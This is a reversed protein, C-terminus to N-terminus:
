TMEAVALSRRAFRTPIEFSTESGQVPEASRKCDSQVAPTKKTKLPQGSPTPAASPLVRQMAAEVDAYSPVKGGAERALQWAFTAIDKIDSARMRGSAATRLIAGRWVPIAVGDFYKRGIALMDDRSLKDALKITRVRGDFQEMVYHTANTFRKMASNYSQETAILVVPTGRDILASRVWNLRVPATNRTFKSPALYHSEDIILTVASFRRVYEIRERLDQETCHRELRIGYAEAVARLLDNLSASDPTNVIRFRAPFLKVLLEASVTKGRRANGHLKIPSGTAHARECERSIEQSLSTKAVADYIASRRESIFRILCEAVDVFYWPAGDGPQRSNYLLGIQPQECTAKLDQALETRAVELCHARLAAPSLTDTLVQGLEGLEGNDGPVSTCDPQGEDYAEAMLSTNPWLLHERAHWPLENLILKAQEVTYSRADPFRRMTATGVDAAFQELFAHCFSALDRFEPPPPIVFVKGPQSIWALHWLLERHAPCEYLEDFVHPHELQLAKDIKAALMEADIQPVFRLRRARM